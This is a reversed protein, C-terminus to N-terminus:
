PPAGAAAGFYVDGASIRHAAGDAARVVLRGESDITEFMGRIAPGPGAVAIADGVGTARALWRARVDAFGHGGNWRAEEDIWADSLAEFLAAASTAIGAAALSTAAYAVGSPEHLVNVGIGIVVAGGGGALTTAELLVGAIKAGDLLVDNPWKLRLDPV